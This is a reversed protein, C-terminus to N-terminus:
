QAVCLYKQTLGETEYFSTHTCTPLVPGQAQAVLGFAACHDRAISDASLMVFASKTCITVSAESKDVVQPEDNDSACATLALLIAICSVKKFTMPM